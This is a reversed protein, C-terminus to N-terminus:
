RVPAWLRHAREHSIVRVRHRRMLLSDGRGNGQHRADWVCPFVRQGEHEESVCRAMRQPYVPPEGAPKASGADASVALMGASLVSVAVAGRILKLMPKLREHKTFSSPM